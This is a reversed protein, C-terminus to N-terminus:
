ILFWNYTARMSMILYMLEMLTRAWDRDKYGIYIWMMCYVGSLSWVVLLTAINASFLIFVRSMALGVVIRRVGNINKYYRIKM